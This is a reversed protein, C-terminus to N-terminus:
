RCDQHYSYVATICKCERAVLNSGGVVSYM